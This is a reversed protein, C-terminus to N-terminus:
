HSSELDKVLEPRGSLTSSGPPDQEHAVCCCPGVRTGPDSPLTRSERSDKWVM